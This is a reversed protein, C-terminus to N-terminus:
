TSIKLNGHTCKAVGQETGAPYWFGTGHCDPCNKFDPSAKEGKSIKKKISEKNTSMESLSSTKGLSLSKVLSSPPVVYYEIGQLKSKGFVHREKRILGKRILGEVARQVTSEAAGIRKSLNPLGIICTAKGYGWSLRFLQIHVAQEATSLQSYLHDVIQHWLKTFGDVEPLSSILSVTAEEKELLTSSDPLSNKSYALADNVVLSDSKPEEIKPPAIEVLSTTKPPVVNPTPERFRAILDASEQTKPATQREVIEKLGTQLGRKRKQNM